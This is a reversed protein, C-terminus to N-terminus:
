VSFYMWWLHVYDRCPLPFCSCNFVARKKRCFSHAAEPPVWVWSMSCVMCMSDWSLLMYLVHICTYTIGNIDMRTTGTAMDTCMHGVSQWCSQLLPPSHFQLMLFWLLTSPLIVVCDYSTICLIITCSCICVHVHEKMVAMQLLFYSTCTPHKSLGAPSQSTNICSKWHTKYPIIVTWIIDYTQTRQVM